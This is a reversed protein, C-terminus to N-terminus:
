QLRQKGYGIARRPARDVRPTYLEQAKRPTLRTVFAGRRPFVEVLNEEQLKQLAERITGRSVDMSESLEVERLPEGPQLDGRFISDRISGVVAATLTPRRVLRQVM